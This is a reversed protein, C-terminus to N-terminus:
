ITDNFLGASESASRNTSAPIWGKEGERTRGDGMWKGKEAMGEKGEWIGKGGRGRGRGKGQWDTGEGERRKGVWEGALSRPLM